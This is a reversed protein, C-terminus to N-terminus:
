TQFIQIVMLHRLKHVDTIIEKKELKFQNHNVIIEMLNVNQESETVLYAQHLALTDESKLYYLFDFSPISERVSLRFHTGVTKMEKALIYTIERAM